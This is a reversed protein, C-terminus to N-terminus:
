KVKLKFRTQMEERWKRQEAERDVNEDPKRYNPTTSVVVDGFKIANRIWNRFCREPSIMARKYQHDRCCELCDDIQADTLGKARAWARLKEDPQWNKPLLYFRSM